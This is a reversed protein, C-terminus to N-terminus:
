SAGGPFREGNTVLRMTRIDEERASLVLRWEGNVEAHIQVRPAGDDAGLGIAHDTFVLGRHPYTVQHAIVQEVHGSMWTIEYVDPRGRKYDYSWTLGEADQHREGRDAHEADLVCAGPANSAVAGCITLEANPTLANM